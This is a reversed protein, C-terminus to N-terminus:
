KSVRALASLKQNAKPCLETIHDHFTLESDILVGLLEESSSSTMVSDNVKLSRRGYPSSLFHSKGSNVLFGNQRFWNFLKNVNPELVRIISNFDQGCIYPTTDDVYSAFELDYNLYFLDAIFILFLLPGLISGQPVGFLINLCHSFTSEIKTKQKQNKLCASVFAIFKMDFGYATLKAILLQHPICDFVKSLDALVAAFFGKEDRIKRLKEITVLLCHQIGTSLRM